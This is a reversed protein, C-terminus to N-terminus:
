MSPPVTLAFDFSVSPPGDCVLDLYRWASEVNVLVQSGMLSSAWGATGDAIIGHAEGLGVELALREFPGCETPEVPCIGEVVALEIPGYWEAPDRDPPSPTSAHAGAALTWGEVHGLTFWRAGPWIDRRVYRLVLGDEPPYPFQLYPDATITLVHEEILGGGSPCGLVMGWLGAEPEEWWDEVFCSLEVDIEGYDPFGDIEFDVSAGEGPACPADPGPDVPADVATDQPADPIADSGADGTLSSSYCGSVALAAILAAPRTM